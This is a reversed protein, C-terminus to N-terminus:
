ANHNFNLWQRTGEFRCTFSALVAAKQLATEFNNHDLFYYCFAGHLFDGAGLTDKVEVDPVSVSGKKGQSFYEIESGGNSIAISKVNKSNMYDFLEQQTTCNPPMFDASCIAIDIYNFLEHFQPKWSGCDSVVPIGREKCIRACEISFEPYFGDVLLLQPNVLDILKQPMITSELQKPNHSIITRDGNKSTLVTALITEFEQGYALDFHEVGVSNLDQDIFSSFANLGAPSALTAMKNLYAFAVAANTAPGGVLIDPISTKIKTNVVPIQDIFYQIDITTLGVFLAKHNM